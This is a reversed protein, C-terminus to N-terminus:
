DGTGIVEFTISKMNTRFGTDFLDGSSGTWKISNIWNGSDDRLHEKGSLSADLLGLLRNIKKYSGPEDHVFFTVSTRNMRGMGPNNVGWRVAAFPTPPRNDGDISSGTYFELEALEANGNAEDILISQLSM